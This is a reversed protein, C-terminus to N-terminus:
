LKRVLAQVFTGKDVQFRERLQLKQDLSDFLGEVAAQFTELVGQGLLSSAMVLPLGTPEWTLDSSCM